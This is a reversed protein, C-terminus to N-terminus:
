ACYRSIGKLQSALKNLLRPSRRHEARDTAEDLLEVLKVTAGQRTRFTM